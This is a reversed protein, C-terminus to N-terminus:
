SQVHLPVAPPYYVPGSGVEPHMSAVVDYRGPPTASGLGGDCRATGFIVPIKESQGTSLRRGYGTGAIGVSLVGVVRRTGRQVIQAALPQGTDMFFVGAGENQVILDASGIAGSRISSHALQLHLVLWSPVPTATPMSSCVPSRGPKGCYNTLGVTISVQNHYEAQLKFALAEQGPMLEVDVTSAGLGVGVLQRRGEVSAEIENQVAMLQAQSYTDPVVEPQRPPPQVWRPGAVFKV